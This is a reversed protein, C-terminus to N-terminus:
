RLSVDDLVPQRRVGKASGRSTSCRPRGVPRRQAHLPLQLPYRRSSQPLEISQRDARHGEAQEAGPPGEDGERPLARRLGQQEAKKKEQKHSRTSAATASKAAEAERSRPLLQGQLAPDDRLRRRRDVHSSANDLFRHDHSVVLTCGKFDALFRELWRISLIDLHNTPEDLLLVDPQSALVQALLVRLKFGGSLTSLPQRHVATPIGLGELIEGARAELTYGDRQVVLDELEAYRDGDFHTDAKALLAEKEVMAEWLEADGMMVVDLIRDHEYQFHDQALVGVTARKPVTVEGESAPEQGALISLLTSKGSGNAGVVGYVHGPQFQLSVNEFLTEAGHRKALRSVAIM